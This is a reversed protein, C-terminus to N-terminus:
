KDVRIATANIIVAEPTSTPALKGTVTVKSLKALGGVGELGGAVVRGDSDVVQITVTAALIDEPSECCVDWPTECTDGPNLDCSILEAPDGLIFAARGEVFPSKSGLVAGSLTVEDGAALKRAAVVSLAEGGVPAGFVATLAPNVPQAPKAAEEPKQCSGLLSVGALMALLTNKM